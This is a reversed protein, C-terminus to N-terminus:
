GENEIVEVDNPVYDSFCPALLALDYSTLAMWLETGDTGIEGHMPLAADDDSVFLYKWSGDQDTDDVAFTRTQIRKM